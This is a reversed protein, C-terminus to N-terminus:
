RRTIISILFQSTIMFAFLCWFLIKQKSTLVQLLYPKLCLMIVMVNSNHGSYYLDGCTENYAKFMIQWWKHPRQDDTLERCFRTASPIRTTQYTVLRCYHNVTLVSYVTLFHVMGYDRKDHYHRSAVAFVLFFVTFSWIFWQPLNELGPSDYEPLLKFGLDYLVYTTKDIWKFILNRLLVVPFYIILFLIFGLVLINDWLILMETKLRSKWTSEALNEM